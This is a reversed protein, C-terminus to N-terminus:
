EVVRGIGFQDGCRVPMGDRFDIELMKESGVARGEEDTLHAVIQRTATEIVEGSSPYAYRGDITFTVWGPEDRVAVSELYVPPQQTADFVHMRRNHADCVWIQTEDPTLGIGHSPCGHRAVPGKEVGPVEVRHLMKGTQLDGVEFGLLENVTVYCRTQRGNVTFPRISNSFPGVTHDAVHRTADAVTLLPSRLGALYCWKGDRGFVTNHAGSKPTIAAVVDGTESNVVNWHDKELSPLYIVSGDPAMSMRDCGGEYAREWLLQETILDLCQLTHTTSVYIRHLEANACVGKVNRPKGNEDVGATPIRKVFRHGADIDFVALGHGGYELYDRVGPTAVYLFHRDEASAPRTAPAMVLAAVLFAKLV